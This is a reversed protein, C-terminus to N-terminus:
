SAADNALLPLQRREVGGADVAMAVGEDRVVMGSAKRMARELTPCVAAKVDWAALSPAMVVVFSGPIRVFGDDGRKRQTSINGIAGYEAMAAKTAHLARYVKLGEETCGEGVEEKTNPANVSLPWPVGLHSAMDQTLAEGLGNKMARWGGGDEAEVKEMYLRELGTSGEVVWELSQQWRDQVSQSRRGAAEVATVREELAAFRRDSEARRAAAM